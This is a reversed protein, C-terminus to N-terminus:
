GVLFVFIEVYSRTTYGFGTGNKGVIEVEVEGEPLLRGLFSLIEPLTRTTDLLAGDLLIEPVAGKMNLVFRSKESKSAPKPAAVEVVPPPAAVEVPPPPPAAVVSAPAAVLPAAVLPPVSAGSSTKPPKVPRERRPLNLTALYSRVKAKVEQYDAPLNQEYGLKEARTFWQPGFYSSYTQYLTRITRPSNLVDAFFTQIETMNAHYDDHLLELVAFEESTWRAGKAVAKEARTLTFPVEPSAQPIEPATEPVTEPVTESVPQIERETQVPLPPVLRLKPPSVFTEPAKTVPADTTRKPGHIGFYFREVAQLCAAPRGKQVRIFDVGAKKASVGLVGKASHSMFGIAVMVVDFRGSEIAASMASVSRPNSGEIVGWEIRETQLTSRLRVQLEPDPRNSVFLIRKGKTPLDTLSPLEVPPTKPIDLVLDNGLFIDPVPLGKAKYIEAIVVDIQGKFVRVFPLRVSECAKGIANQFSPTLFASALLILDFSGTVITELIEKEDMNETALIELSKTELKTSFTKEVFPDYKTTVFGVRLGATLPHVMAQAENM